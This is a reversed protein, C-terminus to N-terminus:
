FEYRRVRIMWLFLPAGLFATLIGIPLEAPPKIMRAGVGYQRQAEHYDEGHVIIEQKERSNM